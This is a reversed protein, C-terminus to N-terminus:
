FMGPISATHELGRVIIKRINDYRKIAIIIFCLTFFFGAGSIYITGGLGYFVYITITFFKVIFKLIEHVTINVPNSLRISYKLIFNIMPTMQYLVVNHFKGLLGGKKSLILMIQGEDNFVKVYKYYALIESIFDNQSYTMSHFGSKLINYMSFPFFMLLIVYDLVLLNRLFIRLWPRRQQFIPQGRLRQQQQIGPRVGIIRRPNAPPTPMRHDDNELESLIDQLAAQLEHQIQEQNLRRNLVEEEKKKQKELERITKENELIQYKVLFEQFLEDDNNILGSESLNDKTPLRSM